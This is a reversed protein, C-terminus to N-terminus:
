ASKEGDADVGLNACAEDFWADTDNSAGWENLAKFFRWEAWLLNANMPDLNIKRVGILDNLHVALAELQATEIAKRAAIRELVNDKTVPEAVEPKINTHATM